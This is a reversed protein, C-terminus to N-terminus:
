FSKVKLVCCSAAVYQTEHSRYLRVIHVANQWTQETCFNVTNTPSGISRDKKSVCDDSLATLKVRERIAMICPHFPTRIDTWPVALQNVTHLYHFTPLDSSSKLLPNLFQFVSCFFQVTVPCLLSLQHSHVNTTTTKSACQTPNSQWLYRWESENQEWENQKM